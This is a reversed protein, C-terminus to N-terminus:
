AGDVIKMVLRAKGIKRWLCKKLGASKQGGNEEVKGREADQHVCPCM